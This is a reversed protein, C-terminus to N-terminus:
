GWSHAASQNSLWVSARSQAAAATHWVPEGREARICQQLAPLAAAIAMWHSFVWIGGHFRSDLILVNPCVLWITQRSRKSWIGTSLYPSKVFSHSAPIHCPGQLCCSVFFLSSITILTTTFQLDQSYEKHQAMRYSQSVTLHRSGFHAWAGALFLKQKFPLATNPTTIRMTTDPEMPKNLYVKLYFTYM